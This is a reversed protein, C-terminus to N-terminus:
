FDLYLGQEFFWPEIPPFNDALGMFKLQNDKVIIDMDIEHGDFFEEVLVDISSKEDLLAKLSECIEDISECKKM